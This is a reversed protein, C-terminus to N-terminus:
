QGEARRLADEIEATATQALAAVVEAHLPRDRPSPQVTALDFAPTVDLFSAIGQLTAQPAALLQEYAVTHAVGPPLVRVSARLDRYRGAFLVWRM